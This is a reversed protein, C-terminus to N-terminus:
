SLSEALRDYAPSLAAWRTRWDTTARGYIHAALDEVHAQWGAGHGALVDVPLGREEIVLRTKDGETALTAEIVTEDTTGPSMTLSLHHPAECVDIRGPGEWSSTFKAHIVGGLRLDGDVDAIWRALRQADTVASWLDDIDTDYVDEMRVAGKGEAMRYITGVIHIGASDTTM